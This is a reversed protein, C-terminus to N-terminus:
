LFKQPIQNSNQSSFPEKETESNPWCVFQEAQNSTSSKNQHDIDSPQDHVSIKTKSLEPCEFSKKQHHKGKGDYANDPFSIFPQTKIFECNQFYSLNDQRRIGHSISPNLNTTDDRILAMYQHPSISRREQVPTVETRQDLQFSRLSGQTERRCLRHYQDENGRKTRIQQEPFATYGRDVPTQYSPTRVKKNLKPPLMPQDDAVRTKASSTDRYPITVLATGFSPRILPCCPKIPVDSCPSPFKELNNCVLCRLVYM